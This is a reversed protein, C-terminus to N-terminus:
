KFRSQPVVRLESDLSGLYNAIQKLEAHTFPTVMGGMIPNARGVQPNNKTQYAKLAVFLYDSHQGALKPYAPDLPKSFNAGHCSVCNGKKLLADVDASAQHTPKDAELPKVDKGLESFYAALDAMDQDTLSAAIARMTPHKRDGSKYAALAAQVYKAGQGAIMPVHHVEPFSSQYGPISHCGICMAAKKEGAAASGASQAAATSAFGAGILLAVVSAILKRM